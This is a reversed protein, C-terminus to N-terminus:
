VSPYLVLYLSDATLHHTAGTDIVPDDSDGVSLQSFRPAFDQGLESDLVGIELMRSTSEQRPSEPHPHNPAPPHNRDDQPAQQGCPAFPQAAQVMNARSHPPQVQSTSPATRQRHNPRYLDAQRTPPPAYRNQIQPAYSTQPSGLGGVSYGPPTVIPYWAKFNGPALTPAPMAFLRQVPQFQRSPLGPPASRRPAYAPITMPPQSFNKRRPIPCKSLLHDPSRCNWCQLGTIAFGEVMEPVELWVSPNFYEMAQTVQSDFGAQYTNQVSTSFVTSSTSTLEVQHKAIDIHKLIQDPTVALKAKTRSSSAFDQEVRRDVERRLDSGTELSAQLVLGGITERDLELGLSHFDDLMELIQAIAESSSSFDSMKVNKLKEWIVMQEARSATHFRSRLHTVIDFCTNHRLM